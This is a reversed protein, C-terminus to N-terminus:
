RESRATQCRRRVSEDRKALYHAHPYISIVDVDAPLVYSDEIAYDAEGAPIDITKSELKVPLPEHGAADDHPVPRDIASGARRAARFCICRSSSTAARRLTWAREAPEMFPAKGPSWGYM